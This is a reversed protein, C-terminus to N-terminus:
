ILFALVSGSTLTIATVHANGFPLMPATAPITKATLGKASVVNSGGVVISSFVADTVVGILYCNLGAHPNADSIFLFDKGSIDALLVNSATVAAILATLDTTNGGTTATYTGDGNDHFLGALLLEELTYTTGCKIELM